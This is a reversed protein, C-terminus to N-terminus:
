VCLFCRHEKGGTPRGHRITGRERRDVRYAFNTWDESARDNGFAAFALDTLEPLRLDPVLSVVAMQKRKIRDRFVAEIEARRDTFFYIALLAECLYRDLKASRPKRARELLYNLIEHQRSTTAALNALVALIPDSHADQKRPLTDNLEMLRPVWAGALEITPEIDFIMQTTVPETRADYLGYVHIIDMLMWMVGDDRTRDPRHLLRLIEEVVFPTPARRQLSFYDYEIVQEGTAEDVSFFGRFKATMLEERSEPYLWYLLNFRRLYEETTPGLKEPLGFTKRMEPLSRGHRLLYECIVTQTRPSDEYLPIVGDMYQILGQDEREDIDQIIPYVLDKDEVTGTGLVREFVKTYEPGSAHALLSGALRSQNNALAAEICALYKDDPILSHYAALYGAPLYQVRSWDVLDFLAVDFDAFLPNILALDITPTTRPKGLEDLARVVKGALAAAEVPRCALHETPWVTALNRVPALAPHELHGHAAMPVALPLLKLFLHFQEDPLDGRSLKQAAEPLEELPDTTQHVAGTTPDITVKAHRIGADNGLPLLYPTLTPM